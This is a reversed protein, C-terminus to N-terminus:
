KLFDNDKGAHGNEDIYYFSGRIKGNSDQYRNAFVFEMKDNHTTYLGFALEGEKKGEFNFLWWNFDCEALGSYNVGAFRSHLDLEGTGSIDVHVRDNASDWMFGTKLSAYLGNVSVNDLDLLENTYDFQGLKVNAEALTIESLFQLSASAEVQLPSFRLSATTDPMEFVSIDGLFNEMAPFYEKFKGSSISASGTFLLNTWTGAEIASQIDSVMFSFDNIEIPVATPLKLAQALELEVKVSDIQFKDKWSIEAGLGSQDALFAFRIMAGVTYENDITNIKAMVSGNFYVPANFFNITHGYNEDDGDYSIDLILGVNKDTVEASGDMSFDFLGLDKGCAKIIQDQYPLITTGTAFHLDIRDPYLRITPSDIKLVQYLRLLGTAIDDVLYDSSDLRHEQDNYLKFNYLAPIDVPIGKQALDKGVGEATAMDFEVYSGSQDCVEISGGNELDGKIQVDGKFHLWENMKVAGRLTYEGNAKEIKECSTFVYPGFVTKKESGQVIVSFGKQLVATKGDISVEVNYSGVAIKAPITLLYTEEDEYKADIAYDINGNFKVSISSDKSFGTGKLKVEIDQLGKYMYRPSMGSISLGNLVALNDVAQGNTNGNLSYEKVDRVNESPLMVELTRGSMTMTDLADYAVEYQNYMQQHLMDYFSALSSSDSVYVFDGNGSGAITELYATDVDSGLGLTYVTVDKSEALGGIQEYIEDSSKPNNDQGDTMLILVNNEGSKSSFSGLSNIVASFMDTGGDAQMGEAFSILSQDSTGFTKTEVITDNFTVVAISEDTNKDKLFSVVADRLNQISGDMSGSVDCCLMINSGTYDIKSLSFNSIEAGCDYVKMASKLTQVDNLYDSSIQVKATIHEFDGTDIKGISVASKARSVYDVTTQQFNSSIETENEVEPMAQNTSIFEEVDVTLSNDLVTEVYESVNKISETDNTEDNNIVSIIQSMASVYSDDECDGSDFIAESLYSDTSAENGFYNEIKAVELYVKTTDAQAEEQAATLLQEKLMGLAPDELQASVADIRAKLRKEDQVLGKDKNKDYIYELQEEIADAEQKDITQYIDSFDRKKVLGNMYLEAAVMLEHYSSSANLSDVVQDFNKSLIDAKIKAKRVCDMSFLEPCDEEIAEFVRRYKSSPFEEGRDVYEGYLQNISHIADACKQISNKDTNYEYENQTALFDALGKANTEEDEELHIQAALVRCQNDYGYEESYKSIVELAEDYEEAQFLADAFTLMEKKSLTGGTSESNLAQKIGGFLLSGCGLLLLLAMVINRFSFAKRKLLLVPVIIAGPLLGVGVQLFINM